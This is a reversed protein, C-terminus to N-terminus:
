EYKCPNNIIEREFEGVVDEWMSKALEVIQNVSCEGNEYQSLSGDNDINSEIWPEVLYYGNDVGETGYMGYQFDLMEYLMEKIEFEM